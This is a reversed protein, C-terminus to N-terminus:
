VTAFCGLREHDNNSTVHTTNTPKSLSPAASLLAMLARLSLAPSCSSALLALSLGLVSCM